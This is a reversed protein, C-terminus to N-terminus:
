LGIHVWNNKFPTAASKRQSLPNLYMSDKGLVSTDFVYWTDGAKTVLAEFDSVSYPVCKSSLKGDKTAVPVRRSTPVLYGGGSSRPVASKVQVRSMKGNIEVIFDYAANDGIPESVNAGRSIVEFAFQLGLSAGINKTM